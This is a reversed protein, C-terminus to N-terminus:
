FIINNFYQAWYQLLNLSSLLPWIVLFPWNEKCNRLFAIGFFTCVVMCNLVKWMSALYHEFDKLSHKLLVHVSLKWTYLSPKLSVSSGSISNGANMPDDFFCFLELFVDVEAKNVISFDKVTHIVVFRPFNKFFRPIGSWRVQRRLFRYAPWSTVSSSMSCCVPELYSLSNTLANITM